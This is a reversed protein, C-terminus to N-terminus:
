KKTNNIPLFVGICTGAFLYSEIIHISGKLSSIIEKAIYLELGLDSPTSSFSPSFVQEWTKRHIGFFNDFFFIHIPYPHDPIYKVNISILNRRHNMEYRKLPVLQSISHLIINILAQNLSDPYTISDPVVDRETLTIFLQYRASVKKTMQLLESMAQNISIEQQHGRFGSVRIYRDILEQASQFRQLISQITHRIDQKVPKSHEEVIYLANQISGDIASFKAMLEHLFEGFLIPNSHSSVIRETIATTNIRYIAAAIRYAFGEIIPLQSINFHNPQDHMLTLVYDTSTDESPIKLGIFSRLKFIGNLNKFRRNEEIDPEFISTENLVIDTIPSYRLLALDETTPLDLESCAYINIRNISLDIGFVFVYQANLKNKIELCLTRIKAKPNQSNSFDLNRLLHEPLAVPIEQATENLLFHKISAYIHDNSKNEVVIAKVFDQVWVVDRMDSVYIPMESKHLYFLTEDSTKAFAYDEFVRTIQGSITTGVSYNLM